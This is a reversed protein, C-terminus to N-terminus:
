KKVGIFTFHGTIDSGVGAMIANEKSLQADIINEVLGSVTFSGTLSCDSAIALNGATIAIKTGDELFCFSSKTAVNGSAKVTIFCRSWLIDHGAVGTSFARWTGAGDSQNCAAQASSSILAASLALVSLITATRKL